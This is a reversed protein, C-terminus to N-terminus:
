ISALLAIITGSRYLRKSVLRRAPGSNWDVLLIKKQMQWWMPGVAKYVLTIDM